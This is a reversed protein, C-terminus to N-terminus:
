LREHRRVASRGQRARWYRLPESFEAVPFVAPDPNGGAFSIVGPTKTYKLLARIPSPKVNLAIESLRTNWNVTSM